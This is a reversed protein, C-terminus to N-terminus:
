FFWVQKLSIEMEYPQLYGDKSVILTCEFSFEADWVIKHDKVTARSLLNSRSTSGKSSSNSLKWKAFYLGSVYPVNLLEQISFNCQFKIKRERSVLVRPVLFDM